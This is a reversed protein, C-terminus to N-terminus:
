SGDVLHRSRQQHIYAVVPTGDAPKRKALASFRQWLCCLNIAVVGQHTNAVL